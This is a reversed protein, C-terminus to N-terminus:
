YSIDRKSPKHLKIPYYGRATPKDSERAVVRVPLHDGKMLAIVQAVVNSAGCTIVINNGDDTTAFIVVYYGLGETYADDGKRMEARNIVFPVDLFNKLGVTDAGLIADLTEGNAIDMLITAHNTETTSLMSEATQVFLALQENELELTSTKSPKNSAM